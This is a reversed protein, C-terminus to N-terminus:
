QAARYACHLALACTDGPYLCYDRDPIAAVPHPAAPTPHPLFLTAGGTKLGSAAIPGAFLLQQGPNPAKAASRQPQGKRGCEANSM